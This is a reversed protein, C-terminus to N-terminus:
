VRLFLEIIMLCKKDLWLRIRHTVRLKGFLSEFLSNKRINANGKIDENCTITSVEFTTHLNIMALGLRYASCITGLISTTV